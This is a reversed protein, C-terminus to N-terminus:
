SPDPMTFTIRKNTNDWTYPVAVGNNTVRIDGGSTPNKMTYGTPFTCNVNVTDGVAAEAPGNLTVNTPYYTIPYNTTPIEGTFPNFPIESLGGTFNISDPYLSIENEKLYPLGNTINWFINSKYFPKFSTIRYFKRSNDYLVVLPRFIPNKWTSNYYGGSLSIFEIDNYRIGISATVVANSGPYALSLNMLYNGNTFTFATPTNTSNSSGYSVSMVGYAFNSNCYDLMSQAILQAESGSISKATGGGGLVPIDPYTEFIGSCNVQLIPYNINNFLLTNSTVGSVTIAM